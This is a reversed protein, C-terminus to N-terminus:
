FAPARREGFDSGTASSIPGVSHTGGAARALVLNLEADLRDILPTSGSVRRLTELSARYHALKARNKPKNLQCAPVLALERVKAIKDAAFVARTGPDAHAVRNRLNRKRSKYDGLSPDDSVSEVVQAIRGGFRRHLEASTTPTKELVDHLLGAAIIADPQGDGCLLRGVEIPHAIFPAHDVDRHQGAHRAGAFSMAAQAIPLGAFRDAARRRRRPRAGARGAATDTHIGKTM